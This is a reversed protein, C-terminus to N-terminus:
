EKITFIGGKTRGFNEPFYFDSAQAPVHQYKGPVRARLYYDYTYTGASLFESFVFVRDDRLEEHDPRLVRNGGYMDETGGNGIFYEDETEYSFNIIEFGAPIFDELAFTRKDKPIIVTLTGKIIDGVKASDIDRSGSETDTFVRDLYVGEDRAEVNDIDLAYELLIDYYLNNDTKNLNDKQFGIQINKNREIDGLPLEWEIVDTFTKKNVEWSKQEVGDFFLRAKYKAKNEDSWVLFESLVDLVVLNNHTTGWGQDTRNAFIWRMLEDRLPTDINNLIINKIYLATNKINTEYGAQIGSNRSDMYAGRADIAIRNELGGLILKKKKRSFAGTSSIIGLNNLSMTSAEEYIYRKSLRKKLSQLLARYNPPRSEVRSLVLLSNVLDDTSEGEVDDGIKKAIYHVMDDIVEQDVAFGADQILLLTDLVHLTLYYNSYRSGAFYGIGGDYLVNEYIQALGENMAEDLGYTRGQFTITESLGDDNVNKVDFAKSVIALAGLKSVTQESCGYPFDVLDNLADAMYVALTAHSRVSVSGENEITEPIYIYENEISSHTMNSLATAERIAHHKVPIYQDVRDEYNNNKALLTVTHSDAKNDPISVDFYVTKESNKPVFVSVINDKSDVGLSEAHISVNIVQGKKSQNSVIAGFKVVDRPIVFRPVIPQVILDKRELFDYYGVGVKTDSTIALAELQWTTLNDPLVFEIQIFGNEDTVLEAEWFATQKFIGRKKRALDNPSGGDGSKKGSNEPIDFQELVHLATNATLVSYLSRRFFFEIPNKRPNGKLALISMDVASLSVEASVPNGLYDLVQINATVKEGPLYAEKNTSVSVDLEYQDKEIDIFVRGSSVQPGPGILVASVSVNPIHEPKVTFSYNLISSSIDVVDYSFVRGREITIFAKGTNFPSKIVVDVVDGIDASSVRTEIDLQHNEKDQVSYTSFGSVYVGSSVKNIKWSSDHTIVTIDYSGPDLLSFITSGLGNKDTSVYKTSVPTLVKEWQNYFRGDVAQRKFSKWEKKEAIVQVDQHAVPKGSTNTTVIDVAITEGPSVFYKDTKIGTYIGSGHVIFSHQTSVSRGNVDQMKARVVFIKSQVDDKNEFYDSLDLKESITKYGKELIISKRGHQSDGFDCEYCDYYSNKSFSYGGQNHKDFYYNQSTVVYEVDVDSISGGFFYEANFTIEASEGNVYEEKDLSIQAKFPAGVFEEVDFRGGGFSTQILYSGLPADDPIVLSGSFTGFETVEIKETYINSYSSDLIDVQVTKLDPDIGYVVDFEDRVIGKFFVEHGPRYLPRDTYIYGRKKTQSAGGWQLIDKDTIVISDLGKTIVTTINKGKSELIAIGNVDTINSTKIAGLGEYSTVAAYPIPEFTQADIVWYIDGPVDISDLSDKFVESDDIHVDISKETAVINSVSVYTRLAQTNNFKKIKNPEGLTVLYQGRPDTFYKSIDVQLYHNEWYVDPMDIIDYKVESCDSPKPSMEDYHLQYAFDDPKMKCIAVGIESYNESIYTLKTKDPVTTTYYDQMSRLYKDVDAIPSTLGSWSVQSSQGFHDSVDLTINYQKEPQLGWYIKTYYQGEDCLGSELHRGHYVSSQNWSDLVVSENSSLVQEYFESKSYKNIPTTSCLYATTLPDEKDLFLGTVEFNQYSVIDKQIINKNLVSGNKHVVTDIYIEIIEGRVINKSDFFLEISNENNVLNCDDAGYDDECVQKYKKSHLHKASIVTKQLDVPESFNILVSGTPDFLNPNNFYTNSSVLDIGKVVSGIGFTTSFPNELDLSGEKPIANTIKLTNKTDFNWPLRTKTVSSWPSILLVSEDVVTTYKSLMNDYAKKEGYSVKLDLDTILDSEDSEQFVSVFESTKELNIPQNFEVRFPETTSQYTDHVKRLPKVKFTHAHKLTDLAFGEISIFDSDVFVSYETSPLWSSDPVFQLTRSGLWSYSGSISPEIRIPLDQADLEDVSSLAVMPRDFMITVSDHIDIESDSRPVIGDVQPGNVALFMKQGQTVGNNLRLIYYTDLKFNQNPTFTYEGEMDGHKWSGRIKPSFSFDSRPHDVSVGKPTTVTLTDSTLVVDPVFDIVPLSPDYVLSPQAKQNLFIFTSTILVAAICLSIFFIKKNKIMKLLTNKLINKISRKM